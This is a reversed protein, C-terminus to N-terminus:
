LNKNTNRLAKREAKQEETLKPRGRGRKEPLEDITIQHINNVIDDAIAIAEFMTNLKQVKLENSKDRARLRNKELEKQKYELDERKKQTYSKTMERVKDIGLKERYKIVALRHKEAKDAM